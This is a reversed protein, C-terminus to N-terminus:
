VSSDSLFFPMLLQLLLIKSILIRQALRLNHRIQEALEVPTLAAHTEALKLDSNFRFLNMLIPSQHKDPVLAMWGQM